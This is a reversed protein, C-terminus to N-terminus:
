VVRAKYGYQLVEWERGCRLRRFILEVETGIDVADPPAEAVMCTLRVGNELEVIANVYPKQDDFEAPPIDVVTCTVVKGRNPLVVTTSERAGCKRCVARPPFHIEGCDACRGAELRYRQPIERHYRPSIM